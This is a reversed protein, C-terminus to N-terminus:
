TGRSEDPTGQKVQHGQRLWSDLKGWLVVTVGMSSVTLSAVDM